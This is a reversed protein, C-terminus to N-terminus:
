FAGPFRPPAERYENDGEALSAFVDGKESLQTPPFEEYENAEDGLSSVLFDCSHSSLLDDNSITYTSVERNDMKPPSEPEVKILSDQKQPKPCPEAKIEPKPCPEAKIEEEKSQPLNHKSLLM